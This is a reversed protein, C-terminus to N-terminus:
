EVIIIEGPIIGTSFSGIQTGAPSYIVVEGASNFNKADACYLEGTTPHCALANAPQAFLENVTFQNASWVKGGGIFYLLNGSPNACLDDSNNPTSFGTGPPDFKDLFGPQMSGDFSGKCLVWPNVGTFGAAVLCTPNKGGVTVRSTETETLLNIISVTSDIGFGGGNAVLLTNPDKLFMKEPGTGTPITKVIQNTNLDIKAISGNLGDKGWQSVVAFDNNLPLFYRPLTLGGITDVFRFTAQDVVVVLNVGNVCIYGKGNHFTLSQVFQGLAGNNERGFIDQVTENTEPDYWTITGGGGFPGENVVFIGKSYDYTTINTDDGLSCAAVTFLSALFFVSHFIQSVKM